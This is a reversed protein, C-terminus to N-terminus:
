LADVLEDLPTEELIIREPPGGKSKWEILRLVGDSIEIGTIGGNDFCCCGSNFYCPKLKLYDEPV